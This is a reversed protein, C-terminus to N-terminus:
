FTSAPLTFAKLFEKVDKLYEETVIDNHDKGKIIKVEKRGGWKEALRLSHSLPIITDNEAAIILAPAKISPARSISDFPHRLLLSIPLYPFKEKAISEVSDFPSILIVGKVPKKEALYVTVATGLSMGMLVINERDVDNRVSFYDYIRIADNFLHKEGPRGRSLGYGRYNILAFSWGAFNKVEAISWSLEEANGGFYIILPSPEKGSNKIFWGRLKIGDSAAITIDEADPFSKKITVLKEETIKQPLFIIGEQYLYLYLLIFFYAGIVAIVLVKMFRGM